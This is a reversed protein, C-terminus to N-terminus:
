FLCIKNKEYVFLFKNVLLRVEHDTRLIDDLSPNDIFQYMAVIKDIISKIDIYNIRKNLFAHVCEENAANIIAGSNGRKQIIYKGYNILPFKEYNM